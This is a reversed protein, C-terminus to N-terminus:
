ALYTLSFQLQNMYLHSLQLGSNVTQGPAHVLGSKGWDAFEYGMGASWHASLQKQLGLGLTYSLVAQTHSGFAPAPVEEFLRSTIKFDYARNFGLGISGSLYPTVLYGMEALLKGKVSFHAHSVKYNYYFNNFDPDADEWIDGSLRASSATAFAAGLQGSFHSNLSKQRGYFFEVIGSVDGKRHAEYTKVVDPQLLFTQTKGEKYWAPGVSLSLVTSMEDAIVGGMSGAFTCPSVGSALAFLLATRRKM